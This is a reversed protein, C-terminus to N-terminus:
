EIPIKNGGNEVRVRLNDTFEEMDVLDTGGHEELAESLYHHLDYEDPEKEEAARRRANGELQESTEVLDRDVAIGPEYELLSEALDFRTPPELERKTKNPLSYRWDRYSEYNLVDGRPPSIDDPLEVKEIVASAPSDEEVDLEFYLDSM